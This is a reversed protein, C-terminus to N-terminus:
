CELVAWGSIKVGLSFKSDTFQTPYNERIINQPLTIINSIFINYIRKPMKKSNTKKYIIISEIEYFSKQEITGINQYVKEDDILKVHCVIYKNKDFILEVEDHININNNIYEQSLIVDFYDGTIFSQNDIDDGISIGQCSGYSWNLNAVRSNESSPYSFRPQKKFKVLNLDNKARTVAIYAIKNEEALDTPKIVSLYADDVELGKAKAITTLILNCKKNASLENPIDKDSHMAKILDNKNISNLTEDYNNQSFNLLANFFTLAEHKDNNVRDIYRMLFLDQEIEEYCYDWLVLAIIKSFERTTKNQTIHDIKNKHLASSIWEIEGINKCLIAVSEGKNITPFFQELDIKKTVFENFEKEIIRNPKDDTLLTSLAKRINATLTSLTENSQQRKNEILEYKKLDSSLEKFLTKYFDASNISYNELDNANYDYLAQVNDGLLLYGCKISTLINLVILAQYNVFDQLEDVIFYEINRLNGDNCLGIVNKLKTTITDNKNKAFDTFYNNSFYDITAIYINKVEIPFEKSITKELIANEITKKTYNTSCLVLINKFDDVLNNLIIHELRKIVTYTKGTGAPSNIMIEHTIEGEIIAQSDHIKEFINEDLISAIEEIKNEPNINIKQPITPQEEPLKPQAFIDDIQPNELDVGLFEFNLEQKNTVTVIKKPKQNRTIIKSYPLKTCESYNTCDSHECRCSIEDQNNVVVVGYTQEKTINSKHSCITPTDRQSIQSQTLNIDNSNPPALKLLAERGRVQKIFDLDKTMSNDARKYINSIININSKM